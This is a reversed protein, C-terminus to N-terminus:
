FTVQAQVLGQTRTAYAAPSPAGGEYSVHDIDALLRLNPSAQWSVGGILRTQRNNAADTDPDLDDVRAIIAFPQNPVRLVGFASLLRGKRTAPDPLAPAPPNDLRDRLIAGEGALTLLKSRYSVQGVYRQRVGGGTPTGYQSFATVRVGGTRSGDDTALLRASVRGAVDKRQDGPTKSYGEGNYLGVQMNIADGSWSGDVGVGLDSSTLYGARDLPTTGQMRYDWLTEEYDLWPTQMEGLKFTLPSGKPTYTAYAYKLRLALSGDAVRYLDSTVRVGVKEGLAGTVNVYARTVDFNNGHAATDGLQYLYQAYVVGGVKVQPPPAPQQAALRGTMMVCAIGVSGAIRKM